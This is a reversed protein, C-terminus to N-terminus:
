KVGHLQKYEEPYKDHLEMLLGNLSMHLQDTLKDLQDKESQLNEGTNKEVFRIVNYLDDSSQFLRDTKSNIVVEGEHLLKKNLTTM